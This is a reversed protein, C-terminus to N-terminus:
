MCVARFSNQNVSMMNLLWCYKLLLNCITTSIVFSRVLCALLFSNFQFYYYYFVQPSLIYLFASMVIFDKIISRVQDKVTVVNCRHVYLFLLDERLENLVKYVHVVFDFSWVIVIFFLLLQSFNKQVFFFSAICWVFLMMSTLAFVNGKEFYIHTGYCFFLTDERTITIFISAHVVQRKRKNNCVNNMAHTHLLLLLVIFFLHM